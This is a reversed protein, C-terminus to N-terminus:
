ASRAEHAEARGYYEPYRYYYYEQAAVEVDNCVLGLVNAQRRRLLEIAKRSTRMSSLGYRVVFITADIRPALSTTDDAVMVPASDIIVYDYVAYMEGLLTSTCRKLFNEGPNQVISGRPMLSLGPTRTLKVAERWKGPREETMADAFGWGNEVGLQEHLRGRRLDGDILLVTAGAFAFTVALNTAITSKGEGPVGSTVLFSRPAAGEAPLFLLSSRLSRLSEAFAHRGDREVLPTLALAASGAKRAEEPVRPVQALVQEDFMTELDVTTLIRDDCQALVLLVAIALLVGGAAGLGTARWMGARVSVSDSAHQLVSVMDQDVNKNAGINHQNTLQQRYVEQARDVKEKIRNYEAVRRGVDVAKAEWETITKELNAIELRLSEERTKMEDVGQNRLSEILRKQADIKQNLDIMTPHQPRLVKAFDDRQATLSQLDQEARDVDAGTGAQRASAAENREQDLGGPDGKAPAAAAARDKQAMLMLQHKQARDLGPELDLSQLLQYENKLNALSRNLTVLYEAASNGQEQLFGVDNKKEFEILEEQGQAIESDLRKLEADTANLMDDSIESRMERKMSSYEAMVAELYHQTYAPDLGVASLNFISTNQERGVSVRVMAPRLEPAMSAVREEARKRVENSQMFEAQTGLFYTLEESYTAGGPVTIKGGVVMQATSLWAPPQRYAWVAGAFACAAVIVAGLWWRQQFQVTFKRLKNRIAFTDTVGGSSQAPKKPSPM